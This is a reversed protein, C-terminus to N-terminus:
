HIFRKTAWDFLFGQREMIRIGDQIHYPLRDICTYYTWRSAGHDVDEHMWEELLAMHAQILNSTDQQDM